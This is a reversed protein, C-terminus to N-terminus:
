GDSRESAGDPADALAYTVTLIGADIAVMHQFPSRPLYMLVLGNDGVLDYALGRDLAVRGDVVGGREAEEFLPIAEVPNGSASLSASYWRKRSIRPASLRSPPRVAWNSLSLAPASM